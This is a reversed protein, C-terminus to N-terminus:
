HTLRESLTCLLLMKVVVANMVKALFDQLHERVHLVALDVMELQCEIRPEICNHFQSPTQATVTNEKPLHSPMDRKKALWKVNPITITLGHSRKEM